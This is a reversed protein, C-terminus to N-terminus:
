RHRAGVLITLQRRSEAAAVVAADSEPVAVLGVPDVAFPDGSPPAAIIGEAERDTDTIILRVETGALVGEPLRVPVSWWQPPILPRSSLHSPLVPEGAGVTAVLEVGELPVEPLLGVAIRRWEINEGSPRDGPRLETAAFPRPETHTPALEVIAAVLVVVVGGAWRLYPPRRFWYM